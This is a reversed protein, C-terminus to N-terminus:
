DWDPPNGKVDWDPPNGKVDWDPPNGHLDWDPPNGHLDWDPPNGQAGGKISQQEEKSLPKMEAKKKNRKQFNFMIQLTLIHIFLSGVSM